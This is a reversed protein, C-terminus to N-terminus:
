CLLVVTESFLLSVITKCSSAYVYVCVSLGTVPICHVAVLHASHVVHKMGSDALVKKVLRM